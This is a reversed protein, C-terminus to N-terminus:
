RLTDPCLNNQAATLLQHKWAYIPGFDSSDAASEPPEGGRLMMCISYGAQIYRGPGSLGLIPVGNSQLEAIFGASDARAPGTGIGLAAVFALVSVASMLSKKM